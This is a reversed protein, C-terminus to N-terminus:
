DMSTIETVDNNDDASLKNQSDEVKAKDDGKQGVNIASTTITNSMENDGQVSPDQLDNLVVNVMNDKKEMAENVTKTYM